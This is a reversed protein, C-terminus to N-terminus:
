EDLVMLDQGVRTAPFEAQAPAALEDDSLQLPNVHILVLEEVGAQGAIAGAEGAASHTGDDTAADAYWAEHLLLRSGSALEANGPDAATDTCYALDGIRLALTPDTHRRQVRTAISFPGAEFLSEPIEHVAGALDEVTAAFLPSGFLRGLIQATPTGILRAGPGWITPELPLAPLFSLGTVHDLHFHTLVIDLAQAGELLSPEEVLRQVGTGADIL